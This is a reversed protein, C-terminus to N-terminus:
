DDRTGIGVDRLLARTLTGMADLPLDDPDFWQVDSTEDGDPRPAGSEVTADFAVVVYSTRDGNPYTVRYEPGGFVGRVPGIRLVVGAEEEAERRAAEEPSEDPEIAGGITAWNGTDILRVLLLRDRHDRPLVSVSPLVLLENGVLERLRSVFPSIAM